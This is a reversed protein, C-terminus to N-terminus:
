FEVLGFSVFEVTNSTGTLDGLKRKFWSQNSDRFHDPASQAEYSMCFM